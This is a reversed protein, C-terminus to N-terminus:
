LKRKCMEIDLSLTKMFRLENSCIQGWPTLGLPAFHAGQNPLRAPNPVFDVEEEFGNQRSLSALMIMFLTYIRM